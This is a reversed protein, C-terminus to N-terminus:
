KQTEYNQFRILQDQIQKSKIPANETMILKLPRELLSIITKRANKNRIDM